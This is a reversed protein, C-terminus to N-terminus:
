EIPTHYEILVTESLSTTTTPASPLSGLSHNHCTLPQLTFRRPFCCPAVVHGPAGSSIFFCLCCDSSAPLCAATSAIVIRGNHVPLCVRLPTPVPAPGRSGLALSLAAAPPHSLMGDISHKAQSSILVHRLRRAHRHVTHLPPLLLSFSSLSQTLAPFSGLHGHRSPTFSPRFFGSVRRKPIHRQRRRHNSKKPRQVARCAAIPTACDDPVPVLVSLPIIGIASPPSSPHLDRCLSILLPVRCLSRSLHAAHYPCRPPSPIFLGPRTGTCPRSTILVACPLTTACATARM